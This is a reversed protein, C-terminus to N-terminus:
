AMSVSRLGAHSTTQLPQRPMSPGDHRGAQREQRVAGAALREFMEAIQDQDESFDFGNLELFVLMALEGTRKNGDVFPHNMVLSHKEQWSGTPSLEVSRQSRAGKPRPRPLPRM